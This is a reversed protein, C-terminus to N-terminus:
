ARVVYTGAVRDGLRQNPPKRSTFYAVLPLVYPFGDVIWMINRLFARLIGPNGGDGKVVKVGMLFKGPSRGTLGPLIITTFLPVAFDIILWITRNSAHAHSFGYVKDGITIGGGVTGKAFTDVLAFWAGGVIAVNIISDLILAFFRRAIVRTNQPPNM